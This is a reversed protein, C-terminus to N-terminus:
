FGRFYSRLSIELCQGFGQIPDIVELLEDDLEPERGCGSKHGPEIIWLVVATIQVDGPCVAFPGHGRHQRRDQGQRSILDSKVAGRM